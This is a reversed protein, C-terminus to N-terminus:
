LDMRFELGGIDAGNKGSAYGQYKCADQRDAHEAFQDRDAGQQGEHYHADSYNYKSLCPRFQWPGEAGGPNRQDRYKAGSNAKCLHNREREICPQTKNDPHSDTEEDIEEVAHPVAFEM